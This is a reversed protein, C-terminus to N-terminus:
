AGRRAGLKTGVFLVHKAKSGKRAPVSLTETVFGAKKLRSVYPASPGASWVVLVGKPKLADFCAHTGRESYLRRNENQSIAEPGNDVDLLIVDFASKSKTVVDLVDAVVIESRPDSSAGKTLPALHTRNWKVLDAVLEVVTVRAAPARDLAARLTYGLGLGGILVHEANPVRALGEEALAIESDQLRSSMLVHQNVRVVWEDGRRALVFDSTGVRAHDITEWAQM